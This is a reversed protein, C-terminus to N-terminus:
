YPTIIPHTVQLRPYNEGYYQEEWNATVLNPVNPYHSPRSQTTTTTTTADAATATTTTTTTTTSTQEVPPITQDGHPPTMAQDDSPHTTAQGDSPDTM